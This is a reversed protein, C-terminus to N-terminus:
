HRSRGPNARFQQLLRILLFPVFIGSILGLYTHALIEENLRAELKPLDMSITYRVARELLIALGTLTLIPLSGLCIAAGVGPKASLIYAVRLYLFMDLLFVLVIMSPTLHGHQWSNVILRPLSLPFVILALAFAISVVAIAEASDAMRVVVVRRKPRALAAAAASM